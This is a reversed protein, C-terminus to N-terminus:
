GGALPIFVFARGPLTGRGNKLLPCAAEHLDYGKPPEYAVEAPETAYNILVAAAQGAPSSWESHLVVPLRRHMYTEEGLRTFVSRQLFTVERQRCRLRGPPLLRGWLLHERHAHYFRCAELLFELDAAFREQRLHEMRLNSVMPQAGFAVTRALELAFQDPAPSNWDVSGDPDANYEAPWLEEFVQANGFASYSGFCVSRGHYVAAFLPIAYTHAHIAQPVLAKFRELSVGCTIHGDLLDAFCELTSESTIAFGPCERRVQQLFRRLGAVHYGGGGPAHGHDPSYCARMGASTSIMDMYLGDLGLGRAQRVLGMLVDQWATSGGCMLAMRHPIFPNFAQACFEGQEDRVAAPAYQEWAPLEMDALVGNTYIQVFVGHAHLDEVAAKLAERGERPPFYEPYGTDYPHKHWWYWDLAVPLGLRRAFEKVPPVVQAIRGRNWVWGATRSLFSGARQERGGSAWPTRIAWRRYIQAAEYWGGEFVALTAPYGPEFTAGAPLDRPALHHVSLGFRGPGRGTLVWSKLRWQEDRCDSYLGVGEEIWAYFQMETSWEITGPADPGDFLAEAANRVEWGTERPVILSTAGRGYAVLLDPFCVAHLVQGGAPTAISLRGELLGNVVLWRVRVQLDVRGGDKLEASDFGGGARAELGAGARCIAM